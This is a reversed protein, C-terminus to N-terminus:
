TEDEMVSTSTSPLYHLEDINCFWWSERVEDSGNIDEATDESKAVFNGRQISTKSRKNAKMMLCYFQDNGHRLEVWNEGM